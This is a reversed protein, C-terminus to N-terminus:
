ENSSPDPLENGGTRRLWALAAKVYERPQGIDMLAESIRVLATEPRWGAVLADRYFHPMSVPRNLKAADELLISLPLGHTDMLFFANIILKM